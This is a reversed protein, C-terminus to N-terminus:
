LIECKPRLVCGGIDDVLQCLITDKEFFFHHGDFSRSTFGAVTHRDWAQLQSAPAMPDRAGGYARIPCALPRQEAYVYNDFLTFDARLIPEFRDLIEPHNKIELDFPGYRDQIANLLQGKPLHCIPPPTRLHPAPRSAVMLLLPLLVSSFRGPWRETM